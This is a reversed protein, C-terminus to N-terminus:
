VKVMEILGTNKCLELLLKGYTNAKTDMNYRQSDALINSCAFNPQGGNFATFEDTILDPLTITRANFDGCLFIDYNNACESYELEIIDFIDQKIGNYSSDIPPVYVVGIMIRKKTNTNVSSKFTIWVLCENVKKIENTLRNVVLIVIGGFCRKAKKHRVQRAFNYVTYNSFHITKQSDLMSEVLCVIDHQCIYECLQKNQLKDTIGRINWSLINVRHCEPSNEPVHNDPFNNM